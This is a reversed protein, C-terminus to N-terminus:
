NLEEGNKMPTGSRRNGNRTDYKPVGANVHCLIQGITTLNHFNM